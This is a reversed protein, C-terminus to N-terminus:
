KKMRWMKVRNRDPPNKKDFEVAKSVDDVRKRGRSREPLPNGVGLERHGDICRVRRQNRYLPGDVTHEPHPIRSSYPLVPPKGSTGPLQVKIKHETQARDPPISKSRQNGPLPVGGPIETANRPAGIESSAITYTGNSNLECVGFLESRLVNTVGCEFHRAGQPKGIGLLCKLELVNPHRIVGLLHLKGGANVGRVNNNM